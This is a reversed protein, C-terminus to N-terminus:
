STSSPSVMLWNASRKLILSSVMKLALPRLRPWDRLTPSLNVMREVEPTICVTSDPSLRKAKLKFYSTSTLSMVSALPKDSSEMRERPLLSTTGPPVRGAVMVGSLGM